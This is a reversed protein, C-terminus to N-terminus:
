NSQRSCFPKSYNTKRGRQSQTCHSYFYQKWKGNSDVDSAVIWPQCLILWIKWICSADSYIGNFFAILLSSLGNAKEKTSSRHGNALADNYAHTEGMSPLCTSSNIFFDYFHLWKTKLCCVIMRDFCQTM